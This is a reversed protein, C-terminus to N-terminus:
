EAAAALSFRTAAAPDLEPDDYAYLSPLIDGSQELFLSRTIGRVVRPVGYRQGTIGTAVPTMSLTSSYNFAFINALWPATGPHKEQFEFAPGVYPLKALDAHAADPPPTYRDAWLAIDDRIGTLEERYELGYRLGTACILFDFQFDGRTSKIDIANGNWRIDLWRCDGHIRVRPEAMAREFSHRGPPQDIVDFHRAINWRTADDLEAFHALLPIADLWRFPNVVPLQVRRFCLDVSAAGIEVGALAADFASAGHGLIGVRKGALAALDFPLNSHSYAHAPLAEAIHDPVRWAGAGDQGTAIVVRRALVTDDRGGTRTKVVLVTGDPEIGTVATDNRVALAAVERYWRLYQMWDRRPIWTIRDWAAAGYRAEFWARASLSRINMEAGVLAKPTRLVAMRAFTEWPGEFGAAGRDLVVVNGVGERKLGLATVVGSQGGGVIVVDYVHRGSAHTVPRVWDSVPHSLATLDHRAQEALRALAAEAGPLPHLSLHVDDSGLTV